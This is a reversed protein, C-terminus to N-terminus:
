VCVYIYINLIHVLSIYIYIYIIYIYLYENLGFYTYIIYIYIDIHLDHLLTSITCICRDDKQLPYRPTKKFIIKLPSSDQFSDFTFEHPFNPNQLATKVLHQYSGVFEQQNVNGQWHTDWFQSLGM